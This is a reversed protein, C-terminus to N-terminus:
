LRQCSQGLQQHGGFFVFGDDQLGEHLQILQEVPQRRRDLASEQQCLDVPQAVGFDPRLQANRDGGDFTM